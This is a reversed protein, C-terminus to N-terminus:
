FLKPAAGNTGDPGPKAIIHPNVPVSIKNNARDWIIVDGTMIGDASELRPSGTLTVLENTASNKLNYDYVAKDATVHNTAGKEDVFDIVVNTEALIHDLHGGAAPLDVLMWDCALAMKPSNVRVHGRYTAQHGALDFEASDSNIQTPTPPTIASSSAPRPTALNAQAQALFAIGAVLPFLCLIKKM